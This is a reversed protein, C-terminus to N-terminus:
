VSAAGSPSGFSTNGSAISQVLREREVLEVAGEKAAQYANSINTALKNAVKPAKDKFETAMKKTSSVVRKRTEKGKETAFSWVITSAVSVALAGFLIKTPLHKDEAKTHESPIESLFADHSYRLGAKQKGKEVLDVVGEKVANYKDAVTDKMNSVRDKVNDAASKGADSIRNRIEIGKETFAGGVLSGVALGALAGILVKTIDNSKDSSKYRYDDEYLANTQFDM